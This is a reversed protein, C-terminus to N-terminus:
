SGLFAPVEQYKIGPSGGTGLVLTLSNGGGDPYGDHCPSGFNDVVLGCAEMCSASFAAVVDCLGFVAFASPLDDSHDFRHLAAAVAAAAVVASTKARKKARKKAARSMGGGGNSNNNNTSTLNNKIGDTTTPRDDFKDLNFQDDDDGGNQFANNNRRKKGM